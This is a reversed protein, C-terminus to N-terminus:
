RCMSGDGTAKTCAFIGTDDFIYLGTYSTDNIKEVSYDKLNIRYTGDEENQEKIAYWGLDNIHERYISLYAYENHVNVASRYIADPDKGTFLTVVKGSGKEIFCLLSENFGTCMGIGHDTPILRNPKIKASELIDEKDNAVDYCVLKSNGNIKKWYYRRGDLEYTEHVDTVEVCTNGTVALWSTLKHNKPFYLTNERIFCEDARVETDTCLLTVEETKLNQCYLKNEIPVKYYCYGGFVVLIMGEDSIPIEKLGEKTVEYLSFNHYPMRAEDKTYIYLHGNDAFIETDADLQRLNCPNLPAERIPLLADFDVDVREINIFIVLGIFLLTVVAVALFGALVAKSKM